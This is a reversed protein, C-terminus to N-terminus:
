HYLLMSAFLLLVEDQSSFVPSIERNYNRLGPPNNAQPAYHISSELAPSTAWYTSHLLCVYARPKIELVEYYQAHRYDCCGPLLPLDSLNLTM